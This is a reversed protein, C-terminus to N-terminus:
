EPGFEARRAGPARRGEAAAPAAPGNAALANGPDCVGRILSTSGPVVPRWTYHGGSSLLSMRNSAEGRHPPILATSQPARKEGGAPPCRRGRWSWTSAGGESSEGSSNEHLAREQQGEAQEGKGRGGPPERPLVGAPGRRADDLARDLLENRVVE